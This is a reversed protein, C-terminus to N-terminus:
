LEEHFRVWALNSDAPRTWTRENTVHNYFYARDHEESQAAPPSLRRRLLLM